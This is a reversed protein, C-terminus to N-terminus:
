KGFLKWVPWGEVQWGAWVKGDKGMTGVNSVQRLDPLPREARIALRVRRRLRRNYLQKDRKESRCCCRGHVPAKQQSRSM